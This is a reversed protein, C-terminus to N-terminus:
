SPRPLKGVAARPAADTVALYRGTTAIQAHGLLRSVVQVPVGEDLLHTAFSARLMHARRRGPPLGADKAADHVWMTFTQPSTSGLVTGNYWPRLAELAEAAMDNMAVWRPRDGKGHAILVRRGEWDIHDPELACMESRRLGLAYCALIALARKPQPVHRGAAQMLAALEASTYADPVREAPAKPRLHRAPNTPIHGREHAWEFFSRFAQVYLQRSHAKKGLSALFLVVDEETVEAVSDRHVESFLRVLAYRYRRITGESRGQAAMFESWRNLLHLGDM